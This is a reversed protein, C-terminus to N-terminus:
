GSALVAVEHAPNSATTAIEPCIDNGTMAFRHPTRFLINPTFSFCTALLSTGITAAITAKM